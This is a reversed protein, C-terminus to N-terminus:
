VEPAVPDVPPVESRGAALIREWVERRHVVIDDRVEFGLRVKGGAIEVVTVRALPESDVSGGLLVSEQQKRTLILM